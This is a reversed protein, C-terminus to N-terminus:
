YHIKCSVILHRKETFFWFLQSSKSLFVIQIFYVEFIVIM